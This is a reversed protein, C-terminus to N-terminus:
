KSSGKGVLNDFTEVTVAPCTAFSVGTLKSLAVSVKMAEEAGPLDVLFLLDYPGLLAYMGHVTGGAKTIINVAKKTREKSIGKIAEQSYRGLMAFTAM